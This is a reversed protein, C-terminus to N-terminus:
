LLDASAKMEEHLWLFAWRSLVDPKQSNTQKLLMNQMLTLSENSATQSSFVSLYLESPFVFDVTCYEDQM